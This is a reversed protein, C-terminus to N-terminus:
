SKRAARIAHWVKAPTFPMDLNPVGLPRLADMMANALAPLSATCGAEGVGKAGLSNNGSPLPQDVIRMEPLMGARPMCYDMFSGTM